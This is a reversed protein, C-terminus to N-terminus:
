ALRKRLQEMMEAPAAIRDVASQKDEIAMEPKDTAPLEPLRERLAKPTAAEKRRRRQLEEFRKMFMPRQVSELATTETNGWARFTAYGGIILRTEEPLGEWVEMSEPAYSRRLARLLQDWASSAMQEPDAKLRYAKARIDAITPPWREELVWAALANMAETYPIDALARAWIELSQATFKPPNPLGTYSNEINELLRQTERGNM